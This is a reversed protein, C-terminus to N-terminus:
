AAKEPVSQVPVDVILQTGQGPESQITLTGGLTRAREHMGILGLGGTSVLDEIKEPVDFGCGNDEVIMRVRDSCFALQVEVRSAGAHRRANNLAEQAIRFLALEEEPMLRREEGTVRLETEINDKKALDGTVGRIAAALGLHELIPPRLDRIFRRMGGSIDRILEQLSALRQKTAESPSESATLAELRRSLVILMQITEDHLERAIRQREDEQARTIEQVYFRMSAYLRANEVAVGIQNGIATLLELEEPLFQRSRHTAVVLVGQIRDRSMFPVAVQARLGERRVAPVDQSFDQGVMLEGSQAVRGWPGEGPRLRGLATASEDSMGQHAVLQLEQSGKALSFVLGAEMGMVKLVEDLAAKLIQELELSRTVTTTVANIASLRSVAEERLVKERAQTEIMWIVLYGVVAAAVTEVLADAPYSSIWIARPLMILVALVLCLVGGRHRFAFTAIAVPLIFVIREVAHRSLFADVPPLFLRTQPTLYHLLAITALLVVVIWFPPSTVTKKLKHDLSMPDPGM